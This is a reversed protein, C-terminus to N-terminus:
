PDRCQRALCRGLHTMLSRLADRPHRLPTLGVHFVIHEVRFLLQQESLGEDCPPDVHLAAEQVEQSAAGPISACRHVQDFPVFPYFMYCFLCTLPSVYLYKVTRIPLVADFSDEDSVVVTYNEAGKVPISAIHLCNPDGSLM